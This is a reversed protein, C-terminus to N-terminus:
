TYQQTHLIDVIAEKLSEGSPSYQHGLGIDEVKERTMTMGRAFCLSGSGHPAEFYVM